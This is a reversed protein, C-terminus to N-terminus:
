SLYIQPFTLVTLALSLTFAASWVIKNWSFVKLGDLVGVPVLNFLAIWANFAASLMAVRSLVGPTLSSLVFSVLSLGLNTSPGAIATKGMTDRGMPGAIFVAGPSIIKIPSITSLLTILAGFPTLRFEAWLGYRQAVLKHAIEHLLFVSIFVVALSVLIEPRYLRFDVTSLGAGTVLAASLALDKVETRSFSFPRILAPSPHPPEYTVSYDHPTPARAM